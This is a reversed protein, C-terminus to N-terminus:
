NMRFQLKEDLQNMEQGISSDLIRAYKKTMALSTYGLMKSVSEMSIKNALTVTTAFKYRACHTTLNKSIGYLDAVEKLYSNMKQNTPVPLLVDKRICDPNSKYKDIIQSAIPLIPIHAWIKSKHRLKKIWMNRSFLWRAACPKKTQIEGEGLRGM